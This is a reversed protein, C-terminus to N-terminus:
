LAPKSVLQKSIDSQKGGGFLEWVLQLETASLCSVPVAKLVGAPVLGRDMKQPKNNRDLVMEAGLEGATKKEHLLLKLRSCICIGCGAM